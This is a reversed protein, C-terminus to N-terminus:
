TGVLALQTTGVKQRFDNYRLGSAFAENEQEVRHVNKTDREEVIALSMNSLRYQFVKGAYGHRSKGLEGRLSGSLDAKDRLEKSRAPRYLKMLFDCTEEVVGSDRLDSNDFSEGEEANRNVQAPAFMPCDAFKAMEKLSMAADGTREYSSAGRFSRAYYGLYDVLILEPPAGVDEIYEDILRGLADHTLKNQDYTRLLAYDDLIQQSDSAPNHFFHIRRLLNFVEASQMELSILMSRRAACNHILNALFVTKGTGTKAAPVFLQGPQIGGIVADFETYGLTIGAGRHQADEWKLAMEIISHLQKNAMRARDLLKMVDRWDHGGHPHDTEKNRLYETWDCKPLESPLEVGIAKPGILQCIRETAKKGEEDPDLAVFVRRADSFYREFGKPLAQAGPIAVVVPVERGHTTADALAQQLILCDFEGETILVEDAGAIADVNYLRVDDGAATFYKADKVKARTTVVQGHSFYPITIVGDLWEQGKDDMLGAAIFVSLPIKEYGPLTISRCLSANRGVYGLKYTEITEANLGRGVLYDLIEENNLLGEQAIEVARNIVKRKLLPDENPVYTRLDTDGFHKLLSKRNGRTCCRKCDWLWSDSNFYLKGKGKPNGDPCFWCHATVESGAARYTQIGKSALYASLDVDGVEAM